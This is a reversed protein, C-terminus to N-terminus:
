PSWVTTVAGTPQCVSRGTLHLRDFQASSSTTDNNTVTSDALILKGTFSEVGLLELVPNAHCTHQVDHEWCLHRSFNSQRRTNHGMLLKVSLHYRGPGDPAKRNTMGHSTSSDRKTQSACPVHQTRLDWKSLCIQQAHTIGQAGCRRAIKQIQLSLAWSLDSRPLDHIGPGLSATASSSDGRKSRLRDLTRVTAPVPV